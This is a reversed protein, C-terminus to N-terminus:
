ENLLEEYLALVRGFYTKYSRDERMAPLSEDISRCTKLYFDGDEMRRIADCLSDLDNNAFWLGNFGDKIYATAGCTESVISPIGSTFMAELCVLPSAEFWSSTLVLARKTRFQEALQEKDCWGLFEVNPFEQRLPELLPGSGCMTGQLGLKTIAECFLKPNKEADFRGVYLYGSRSAPDGPNYSGEVSIPNPLFTPKGDDFRNGRMIGYTFDSLYCFKPNARAISKDQRKIRAVRYLKQAYSRKDCNRLMCAASCSKLRCIENRQYDYFGGNPCVLFYEHLTVLVKFGADAIADFISSSLAHTWSHIHVVTESPDFELLLALLKDYTEESHLGDIAGHLKSDQELFPKDHAVVVRIDGFRKHVPGCGAFYVVNFGRDTLIRATVYAIQATGGFNDASDDIVIVNKLKPATITSSASM